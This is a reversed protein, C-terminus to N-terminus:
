NAKDKLYNHLHEVKDVSPQVNINRAFYDLWSYTLGTAAAIEDLTQTKGLSSKIREWLLEFTELHLRSKPIESKSNECPAKLRSTKRGGTNGNLPPSLEEIFKKEDENLRDGEENGYENWRIETAEMRSFEAAKHHRRFRRRLGVATGIYLLDEGSYVGYLCISAPLNARDGYSWRHKFM